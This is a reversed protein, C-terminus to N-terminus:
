LPLGVDGFDDKDPGGGDRHNSIPGTKKGPSFPVVEVKFPDQQQPPGGGGGGGGGGSRRASGQAAYGSPLGTGGGMTGYDKFRTTSSDWTLKVVDTPGNRQKAIILETENLKHENESLWNQDGVHYYAERHLLMVVDADQEISGSERLDSMRPRNDGRSEPGRNLQSLCIVPVKLERALAKVGRSIASVEVQRSEKAANPATMLQLYDIIICRIKYLSVMRRARTRLGLVTLGPTDDIYVPAEHLEYMASCIKDYDADRLNGSRMDHSSYGSRASLMRQAIASKSMELSFFAVPVPSTRKASWPSGGMAIQEALNLALATNHVCVDDAVFNHTGPVTLDYVQMPGLPEISVIEDWYVDSEALHRLTSDQLAAAIRSLRERSLAREGVHMNATSGIQRALQSWSMTGKTRAIQTWVDTPILDRNTQYRRTSIVALVRDTADTKAFIGIKEIFTRISRADTIDLQWSPRRADKYKVWRQRLSAIVGFRLLLHQIQRALKESISAYGLQAQGSALVTAWGDTSFLRNIFLALQDARLTFVCPPIFKEGSGAGMLGLEALFKTLPNPDNRRIRELGGPALDDPRVELVECLRDFCARDPVTSGAAWHTVSAPSVGLAHAVDRRTRGSRAIRDALKTGFEARESQCRREDRIIRWSPAVGSRRESLSLRLGGFSQVAHQFDSVIEPFTSTFRPVTGTLGGDGILYALLKIECERMTQSGFVPLTRPVAVCDGESLEGLPKWGNVTLFPHTLTTRVRRGLRTTVEFVPKHGDDIFDSPQAWGLKFDPNLTPIQGSRRQYLQEITAMSGDELVIESHAALCKGMSPRAAVILMDGEQLGTTLEDLDKFHTPIGSTGKGQMALLRQYEQEVLEALSAVDNSEDQQAIQFIAAQASDILPKAGEPGLEGAHYAEYVIQGGASILNRLRFKDAVIKAYHVAAAPGPTESALKELYALGGVDALQQGDGLSEALLVLNGAQKQDYTKVIAQYIAAHAERYFAEPSKIIGIIEHIVQPDIIMAGLLAMEALESSPPPKDFLKDLPIVPRDRDGRNQRSRPKDSSSSESPEPM